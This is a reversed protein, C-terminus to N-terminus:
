VNKLLYHHKVTWILRKWHLRCAWIWPFWIFTIANQLGPNGKSSMKGDCVLFNICMKSKHSHKKNCIVCMINQFWNVISYEAWSFLMQMCVESILKGVNMWIAAYKASSKPADWRQWETFYICCILKLIVHIDLFSYFCRYVSLLISPIQIGDCSFINCQEHWM